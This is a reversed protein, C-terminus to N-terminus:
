AHFMRHMDRKDGLKNKWMSGHGEVMDVEVRVASGIHCRKVITANTKQLTITIECIFGVQYALILVTFVLDVGDKLM